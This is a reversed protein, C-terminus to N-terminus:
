TFLGYPATIMQAAMEGPGPGRERYTVVLADGDREVRQLEVGIGATPRTGLFVGIVTSKTFDVAPCPRGGAHEGCLKKWDDATRVAVERREEIGSQVGSELAKFPVPDPAGAVACFAAVLTSVIWTGTM